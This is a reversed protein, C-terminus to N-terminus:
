KPALVGRVLDALERHLKEQAAHHDRMDPEAGRDLARVHYDATSELAAAPDPGPGYALLNRLLDCLSRAHEQARFEPLAAVRGASLDAPPLASCARALATATDLHLTCLYLYLTRLANLITPSATNM